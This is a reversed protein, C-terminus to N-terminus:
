SHKWSNIKKIPENTSLYAEFKRRLEPDDCPSVEYVNTLDARFASVEINGFEDLCVGLAAKIGSIKGDKMETWRLPLFYLHHIPSHFPLSDFRYLTFLEIEVQM